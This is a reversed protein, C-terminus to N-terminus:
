HVKPPRDRLRLQGNVHPIMDTGLNPTRPEVNLTPNSTRPEFDLALNSTSRSSYSVPPWSILLVPSRRKITTVEQDESRRIEQSETPVPAPEGSGPMSSRFR